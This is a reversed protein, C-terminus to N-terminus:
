VLNKTLNDSFNEMKTEHIKRDTKNGNNAMMKLPIMKRTSCREM